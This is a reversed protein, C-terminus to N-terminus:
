KGTRFGRGRRSTNQGNAGNAQSKPVMQDSYLGGFQAIVILVLDLRCETQNHFTHIVRDAGEKNEFVVEAIIIPHDKVLRCSSILGGVPTMASEIDAATTGPAFNQAIVAYPGALGRITMGRGIPQISLPKANYGVTVSSPNRELADALRNAKHQRTNRPNNKSPRPLTTGPPHIRAALSNPDARSKPNRSDPHLDHTWEGNIDANPVRATSSLRKKVGAKSTLPGVTPASARRNSDRNFIRAALAENKRRERGENIIKEFDTAHKKAM